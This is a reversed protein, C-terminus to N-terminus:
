RAIDFDIPGDAPTRITRSAPKLRAHWVKLLYEGAPVNPISWKGAKDTVAFYPTPVAVVYGLMEPHPNCLLAAVCERKFTYSRVEGKPWTGLNFKEACSDPTFVNHPVPDSNLFDVTTGVLIPRVHPIFEMGKQDVIAREKPVAFTTGTVAGIYVVANACDRTGKCRVTGSLPEARASLTVLLLAGTVIVAAAHRM